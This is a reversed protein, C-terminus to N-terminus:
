KIEGKIQEGAERLCWEKHTVSVGRTALDLARKYVAIERLLALIDNAMPLTRKVPQTWLYQNAKDARMKIEKLQEDTLM